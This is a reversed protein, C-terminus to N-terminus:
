STFNKASIKNVELLSTNSDEFRSDSDSDSDGTDLGLGSDHTSDSDRTVFTSDSDSDRTVFTSVSDSDSDHTM